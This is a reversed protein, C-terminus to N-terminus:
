QLWWLRHCTTVPPSAGESADLLHDLHISFSDIGQSHGTHDATLLSPPGRCNKASGEGWTTVPPAGPLLGRAGWPQFMPDM